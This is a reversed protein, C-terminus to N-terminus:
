PDMLRVFFRAEKRDRTKLSCGDGERSGSASTNAEVTYCINASDNILIGIHSTDFVMLDGARLRQRPRGAERDAKERIVVVQRNAEFTQAQVSTPSPKYNPDQRLALERQFAAVRGDAWTTAWAFAGPTKGRWREAMDPTLKLQALVEKDKLWERVWYAVAAACYPWKQQHGNPTDTAPWMRSIWPARNQSIEVKGVDRKAIEILRQRLELTSM